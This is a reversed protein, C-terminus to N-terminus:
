FPHALAHKTQFNTLSRRGCSTPHFFDLTGMESFSRTVTKVYTADEIGDKQERVVSEEEEGKGKGIKRLFFWL